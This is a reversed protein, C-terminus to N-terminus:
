SSTREPQRRAAHLGLIVQQHFAYSHSTTVVAVESGKPLSMSFVQAALQGMVKANSIIFSIGKLPPMEQNIFVVPIKKEEIIERMKESYAESGFGPAFILGDINEQMVADLAEITEQTANNDPFFQFVGKVKTIRTIAWGARSGKTCTDWFSM